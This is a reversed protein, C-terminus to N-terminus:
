ASQLAKPGGALIASSAGAEFKKFNERFRRALDDAAADYGAADSWQAKAQLVAAPVGPCESVYKFGFRADETFHELQGELAATIMARTYRLKIREGVGYGGGVWGTNVLWVNLDGSRMKEMLMDAYDSPHLPMFPAGFCASFVAKPETIGAETGAVKATYGSIFHYAAQEPGLKSMPPLVGYADCTLFFINKPNKGRLGAAVHDIHEIPYSVRTNETIRSDTYDPVGAENLVINELIAGPRIARWIDPEKEESLDIVKAYCGGEFNFVDGEATWGHEDDGILARNPDASLTTKGTGSLGFFLATDGGRGLNASCHMPFTNAETPLLFNLASFIGKKIEGTYGTGGILITKDSFSLIAFNGQRTGDTSPDAQFDPAHLITWEPAVGESPDLFMNYAFLNHEPYENVVRIGISVSALAGARAERVYLKKGDLYDLVKAKLRFYAAEDFPKNISGWWVKDRTRGDEVIFRDEPSRGTFKGTEICLVGSHTLTGRNLRLTEQTLFDPDAQYVVSAHRLGLDAMWSLSPAAGSPTTAM